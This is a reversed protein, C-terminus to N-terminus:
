LKLDKPNQRSDWILLIIITTTEIRYFIKYNKNILVRINQEKTRTGIWPHKSLLDTLRKIEYLLKKSYTNNGNRQIYYELIKSFVTEAKKTWVIQKAM